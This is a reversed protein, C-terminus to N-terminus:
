VAFLWYAVGHVAAGGITAAAVSRTAAFLAVVAAVGAALPGPASASALVAPLVSAVFLAAIAAPGTAQLLRGAAGGPMRGTGGFRTPLYRFAWNAAGAMVAVALLDASM